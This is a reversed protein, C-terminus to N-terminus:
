LAGYVVSDPLQVTGGVNQGGAAQVHIDKGNITVIDGGDPARRWDITGGHSEVLDRAGVVQGTGTTGGGHGGMEGFLQAERLVHDKEWNEQDQTWRAVDFDM